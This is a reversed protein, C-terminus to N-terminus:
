PTRYLFENSLFFAQVMSTLDGNSAQYRDRAEKVTCADGTTPKRGAFYEFARAAMCNQATQSALLKTTLGELGEYPGDQDGSGLLEGTRVIPRGAETDRIRGYDDFGEFSLGIGDMLTHCTACTPDMTHVALRERLTQKDNHPVEPIIGIPAEPVIGCLFREYVARGRSIVTEPEAPDPSAHSALWAPHGLLGQREGTFTFPQPTNGDGNMTANYSQATAPSVFGSRGTLLEKFFDKHANMRLVNETFLEAERLLSDPQHFDEDKSPVSGYAFLERVFKRLPGKTEAVALLRTVHGAIVDPQLVAGSKADAWLAQDPPGDTLSFSLADAVEFADLRLRGEQDVGLESRFVFRPSILLAQLAVRAAERRGGPSAVAAEAATLYHAVDAAVVPRRFLLEAKQLLLPELCASLPGTASVCAAILPDALMREAVNLSTMALDEADLPLLHRDKSSTSFLAGSGPVIGLPLKLDSPAALDDNASSSQGSLAAAVTKAYQADDLGGCGSVRVRRRSLV